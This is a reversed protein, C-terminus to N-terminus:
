RESLQHDMASILRTESLDQEHEMERLLEDTIRGADRLHLSTRREVDLLVRSLDLYRFYHEAHAADPAHSGASVSALRQKYHRAM